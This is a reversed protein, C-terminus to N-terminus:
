ASLTIVPNRWGLGRIRSRIPEAHLLTTIVVPVDSSAVKEPALIPVGRLRKGFNVSNGDVCAIVNADKLVTDCLLKMALQGTGWLIVDRSSALVGELQRNLNEMLSRSDAIYREIQKRFDGDIKWGSGAVPAHDRDYFAELSPFGLDSGGRVVIKEKLDPGFGFQSLLNDLSASSFHNIHETNFDQFPAYLYDAYAAADPVELFIKGTPSGVAVMAGIASKLDLVHELVSALIVLDCKGVESPLRSLEGRYAEMGKARTNQVCVPSPDVGVVNPFGVAKLAGLLGGNACGIDLIRANKSPLARSILEASVVLRRADWDATGGGSSVNTDQYISCTAYYRDYDAQTAPTDAFVMGCASCVVVDYVSPLPYDDMVAFHQTHLVEGNRGVCVPCARLLTKTIAM